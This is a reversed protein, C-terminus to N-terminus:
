GIAITRISPVITSGIRPGLLDSLASKCHFGAGETEAVAADWRMGPVAPVGMNAIAHVLSLHRATPGSADVSSSAAFFHPARLMFMECFLGLTVCNRGVARARM